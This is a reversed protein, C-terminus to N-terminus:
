ISGLVKWYTGAIKFRGLIGFAGMRMLVSLYILMKVWFASFIGFEKRYFLLLNRYENSWQFFRPNDSSGGGAHKIVIQPDIMIKFDAKSARYCFEVDEYYMFFDEDFLGIKDIVEKRILMFTGGVWDVQHPKDYYERDTRHFNQKVGITELNFLWSILALGFPFNGGNSDLGNDSKIIKGSLIGCSDEKEFFLFMKEFSEEAFGTDPNILLIGDYNELYEKAVKNHAKGFGLNKDNKILKIKPFNEKIETASNDPSNNDFVVVDFEYKTKQRFIDELCKLIYDRSNYNIISVLIKM